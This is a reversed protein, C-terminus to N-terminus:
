AVHLVTKIVWGAVLREVLVATFFTPLHPDLRFSPCASWACGQADRERAEHNAPQSAPQSAPMQGDDDIGGMRRDNTLGDTGGMTRGDIRDGTTRDCGRWPRVPLWKSTCVYRHATACFGTMHMATTELGRPDINGTRSSVCCNGFSASMHLRCHRRSGLGTLVLQKRHMWRVADMGNM